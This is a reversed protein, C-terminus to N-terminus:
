PREVRKVSAAIEAAEEPVAIEAIVQRARDFMADPIDLDLAFSVTPLAERNSDYLPEDTSRVTAAVKTKRNRGRAVRVYTRVKM